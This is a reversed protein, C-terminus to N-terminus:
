ESHQTSRQAVHNASVRPIQSSGEIRHFNGRRRGGPRALGHGAARFVKALGVGRVRKDVNTVIVLISSMERQRFSCRGTTFRFVVSAYNALNYRHWTKATQMM